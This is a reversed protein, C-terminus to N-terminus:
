FRVQVRIGAVVATNMSSLTLTDLDLKKKLGLDIVQLDATATLWGTVALSYYMELADEHDLGLGLNSRLFPVFAGSFGTARSAWASATTPRRRRARAALAWRPLRIQHSEPQWRLRGLLPFVGVGHKEDGAPQWLYQDFGYNVSWSSSKRAPPPAPVLLGPFYQALIARLFRVPIEWARFASSCSILPM